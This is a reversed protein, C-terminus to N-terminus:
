RRKWRWCLLRLARIVQHGQLHEGVFFERRNEARRHLGGLFGDIVGHNGRGCHGADFIVFNDRQRVVSQAGDQLPVITQNFLLWTRDPVTPARCTTGM